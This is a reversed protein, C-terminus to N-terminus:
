SGISPQETEFTTPAGRAGRQLEVPHYILKFKTFSLSIDEKVAMSQGSESASLKVEEIYGDSLLLEVVPKPKHEGTQLVVSTFTLRATSFKKRPNVMSRAFSPTARDFVKTIRLRQPRVEAPLSRKDRETHKSTMAWSFSEVEIQGEYDRATSEGPVAKGDLDLKLFIMTAAM